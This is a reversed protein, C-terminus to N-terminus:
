GQTTDALMQGNPIDRQWFTKGTTADIAALSTTCGSLCPGFGYYGSSYLQAFIVGQILAISGAQYHGFLARWAITGDWARVAVVAGGRDVSYILDHTLYLGTLSIPTFSFDAPSDWLVHGDTASIAQLHVDKPPQTNILTIAENAALATGGNASQWLPRGTQSDRADIFVGLSGLYVAKDNVAFSDAHTESLWREAGDKGAIAVFASNEPSSARRRPSTSRPVDRGAIAVLASNGALVSLRTGTVPFTIDGSMLAYVIGKRVVIQRGAMGRVQWLETGDAPNLGHIGNADNAYAVVSADAAVVANGTGAPLRTRWLLKGDSVRVAVISFGGPALNEFVAGYLVGGVIVPALTFHGVQAQWMPLGNNGHLATLGAKGDSEFSTFIVPTDSSLPAPTVTPASCASLAMTLLVVLIFCLTAIKLLRRM